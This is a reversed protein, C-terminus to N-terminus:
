PSDLAFIDLPALNQGLGARDLGVGLKVGLDVDEALVLTTPVSGEEAVVPGLEVDAGGVDGALNGEGLPALQHHGPVVDLELHGQDVRHRHLLAHTEGDALTPSGHAGADDGLDVLLDM